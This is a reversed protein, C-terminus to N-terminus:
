RYASGKTYRSRVKTALLIWAANFGVFLAGFLSIFAVFTPSLTRHVTYTVEEPADSSVVLYYEGFPTQPFTLDLGPSVDEATLVAHQRLAAM